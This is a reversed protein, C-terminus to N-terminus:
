PRGVYKRVSYFCPQNFWHVAIEEPTRPRCPEGSSNFKSRILTWIGAFDGIKRQAYITEMWKSLFAQLAPRNTSEVLLQARELTMLRQMKMPVPDYITVRPDAITLAAKRAIALFALSDEVTRAEARLLRKFVM